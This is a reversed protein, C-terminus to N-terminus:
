AGEARPKRAQRLEVSFPEHTLGDTTADGGTPVVSFGSTMSRAQARLHQSGSRNAAAVVCLAQLCRIAEISDQEIEASHISSEDGLRQRVFSALRPLSVIRRNRAEILLKHRAEQYPTMIQRRLAGHPKRQIDVRPEALRSPEMCHGPAFPAAMAADPNALVAGIAHAILQDLPRAAKLRYDLYALARKNAARIEDDLRDLYEDIRRLEDIRQIDREFLTEARKRDGDTRKESYWKLLRERIADTYQISTVLRLIEQRRALPHERTRLEKYDGIFVREVFDDFFRRVFLKTDAVAGIENMLDRVNTGTNRVYELLNRTQEATEHLTDGGSADDTLLVELNAEISRIKGAVFLPGTRAFDMLRSMFHAVIPPMTVMDRVGVRDARLWGADKLRNYAENARIELPTALTLAGDGEAEWDQHRIEDAIAKTIEQVPFGHSPPLPADPGFRENHLSCLLSWYRQRNPSALPAFLREPLRSFLPPFREQVRAVEIANLDPVDM